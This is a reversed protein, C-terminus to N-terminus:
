KSGCRWLPRSISVRRQPVALRCRCTPWRLSRMSKSSSSVAGSSWRSRVSATLTRPVYAIDTAAPIAWGPLTEPAGANFLFYVLAPAAMGGIAHAGRSHCTKVLLDTYARMFPVAM